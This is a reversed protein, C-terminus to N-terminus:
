SIEAWELHSKIKVAQQDLVQVLHPPPPKQLNIKFNLNSSNHPLFSFFFELTSGLVFNPTSTDPHLWQTMTFDLGSATSHFSFEINKMLGM